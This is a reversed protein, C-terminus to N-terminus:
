REVIVFFLYCIIMSTNTNIYLDEDEMYYNLEELKKIAVEKYTSM